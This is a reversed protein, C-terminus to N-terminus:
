LQYDVTLTFCYNNYTELPLMRSGVQLLKVDRSRLKDVQVSPSNISLSM